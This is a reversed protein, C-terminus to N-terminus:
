DVREPTDEDVPRLAKEIENLGVAHRQTVANSDTAFARIGGPEETDCALIFPRIPHGGSLQDLAFRGIWRAHGAPRAVRQASARKIEIFADASMPGICRFRDTM